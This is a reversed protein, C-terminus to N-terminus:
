KQTEGNGGAAERPAIRKLATAAETRIAPDPDNLLVTVQGAASNAKPGYKELALLAAYRTRTGVGPAKLWGVLAPVVLEPARAFEGLAYIASVRLDPDSNTLYPVLAPVIVRAASEIEEPSRLKQQSWRYQRTAYWSLTMLVSVKKTHNTTALLDTLPAVAKLGLEPLIQAVRGAQDDDGKNFLLGLDHIAPEARSGLLGLGVTGVARKSSGSYVWLRTAPGASFWQHEQVFRLLGVKYPPDPKAELLEMYYPLANTGVALVAAEAERPQVGSASLWYGQAIWISVPRGNYSPGQSPVVWWVVLGVVLALLVGIGIRGGLKVGDSSSARKPWDDVKSPAARTM